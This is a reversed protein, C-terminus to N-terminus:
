LWLIETQNALRVRPALNLNSAKQIAMTQNHPIMSGERMILARAEVKLSSPAKFDDPSLRWVIVENAAQATNAHPKASIVAMEGFAEGYSLESYEQDDDGLLRVAGREILFLGTPRDGSRYIAESPYYRQPALYQAILGRERASLDQLLPIRALRDILQQQFQAIGRGFALGLYLGIESHETILGTM